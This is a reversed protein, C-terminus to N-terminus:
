TSIFIKLINKLIQNNELHMRSEYVVHYRITHLGRFTIMHALLIENTVCKYNLLLVHVVLSCHICM